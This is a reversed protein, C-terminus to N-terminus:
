NMKTNKLIKWKKLYIMLISIAVPTVGSIRSAQGLNLPRIMCLKEIIEKSLGPVDKFEFGDPIKIYEIKRFNEIEKLQRDIFGKYKVEIEVEQMESDSLPIKGDKNIKELMNFDVGPRKLLDFMSVANSIPSINLKKLRKNVKVNPYLRINKIKGLAKRINAKKALM